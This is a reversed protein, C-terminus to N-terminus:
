CRCRVNTLSRVGPWTPRSSCPSMGPSLNEYFNRTERTNGLAFNNLRVKQFRRTNRELGKFTQPNPEFSHVECQPFREKFAEISQGFNAGVDFIRPQHRNAILREIDSLPNLGMTDKHVRWVEYGLSRVCRKALSKFRSMSVM